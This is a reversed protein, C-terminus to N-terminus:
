AEKGAADQVAHQTRGLGLFIATVESETCLNHVRRVDEHHVLALENLVGRGHLEEVIGM